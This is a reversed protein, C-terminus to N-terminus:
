KIGEKNLNKIAIKAACQEAEKITNGKGSGYLKNKIYVEVFFIKRHEKGSTKVLKYEPLVNKFNRNVIIQLKSKYDEFDKKNKIDNLYKKYLSLIFKESEIYGLIIYIAGILSEVVDSIIRKNKKIDNITLTNGYKIYKYIKNEMGIKFLIEKSVLYSKIMALKGTEYDPFNKFLYNIICLSLVADGIFEFKEYNKDGLSIHSFATQIEPRDLLKNEKLFNELKNSILIM